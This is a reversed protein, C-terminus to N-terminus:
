QPSIKFNWLWYECECEEDYDRRRVVENRGMNSYEWTYSVHIAMRCSMETLQSNRRRDVRWVTWSRVRNLMSM